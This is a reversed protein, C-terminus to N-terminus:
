IKGNMYNMFSFVVSHLGSAQIIVSHDRNYPNKLQFEFFETSGFSPYLVHEVCVAHSLMTKINSHKAQLRHIEITKLDRM